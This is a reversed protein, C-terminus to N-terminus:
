ILTFRLNILSAWRLELQRVLQRLSSSLKLPLLYEHLLSFTTEKKGVKQVICQPVFPMAVTITFYKPLSNSDDHVAPCIFIQFRRQESM